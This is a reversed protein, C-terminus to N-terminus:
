ENLIVGTMWLMKTGAECNSVKQHLVVLQSNDISVQAVCHKEFISLDDSLKHWLKNEAEHFIQMSVLNSVWYKKPYCTFKTPMHMIWGEMWCWTGRPAASFHDYPM